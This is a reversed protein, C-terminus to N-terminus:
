QNYLRAKLAVIDIEVPLLAALQAFWSDSKSHFPALGTLDCIRRQANKVLEHCVIRVKAWDHEHQFKIAAPVSLFAALDRTGWWEHHDVFVSDGPTESEYGWSVV